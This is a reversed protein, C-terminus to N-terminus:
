AAQFARCYPRKWTTMRPKLRLNSFARNGNFRIKELHLYHGKDVNVQVVYNTDSADLFAHVTVSPHIFGQKELYSELRSKLEPLFGHDLPQSIHITMASVIDREFLPFAGHIQIDKILGGRDKSFCPPAKQSSDASIAQSSSFFLCCIIALAPAGFRRFVAKGLKRQRFYKM